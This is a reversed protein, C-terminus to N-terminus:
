KLHAQAELRADIEAALEAATPSDFIRRLSLEVGFTDRLRAILQTGLLSHGGLFFFNDTAGIGPVGLLTALIAAVKEQTPTAPAASSTDGIINAASLAPLATRDVKGNLNLPMTDIRVFIAPVMYDPLRERCFALLSAYSITADALPVIYAVLQKNEGTDERTIVASAQVGPHQDLVTVIENPEVRYGRIKIQSDIRGVFEIQGDALRKGLDGSRYLRDGNSSFPHPIFKERDLDPRRRYGRALGAGGICIEGITGDAVPRLNEDLIHIHVNDIAQGISPKASNFGDAPVVGSTSVVTCETPGYNNVVMFPLNSTPYRHLTDAGTLMVRLSTQPPWAMVMLEEALTTPVFGITIRESVLWSQLSSHTLRTIEDCFHICAGVALYPWIEWVAADFSMSAVQSARDAASINFARQHWRILNLLSDRTIEVGKPRGDSGSTYIVYALDGVANIPEPATGPYRAIAAASKDLAIIQRDGRPLMSAISDRTILIRVGSNELMYALREAPYSPDLPLYAGGAKLIALEAVVMASSRELCLAVLVDPGVGLSRLYHALQNSQRELDGYAIADTASFLATAGPNRRAHASILEEVSTAQALDAQLEASPSLSPVSSVVSALEAPRELSSM